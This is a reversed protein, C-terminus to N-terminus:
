SSHSQRRLYGTSIHQHKERIIKNFRVREITGDRTSFYVFDIKYRRLTKLQQLCHLCPRSSGLLGSRSVRIVLLSINKPRKNNDRPPLKDMADMEAHTSPHCSNRKRLSNYGVASLQQLGKPNFFLQWTYM